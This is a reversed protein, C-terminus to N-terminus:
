SVHLANFCSLLGILRAREQGMGSAVGEELNKSVARVRGPSGLGKKGVNILKQIHPFEFQTGSIRRFDLFHCTQTVLTPHGPTFLIQTFTQSSAGGKLVAGYGQLKINM